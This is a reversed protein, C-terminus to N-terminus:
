LYYKAEVTPPLERRRVEEEEVSVTGQERGKQCTPTGEESVRRNIITEKKIKAEVPV